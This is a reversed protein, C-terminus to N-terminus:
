RFYASGANREASSAPTSWCDKKDDCEESRPTPLLRLLALFSSTKYLIRGWATETHRADYTRTYSSYGTCDRVGSMQLGPVPIASIPKLGCRIQHVEVNQTRPQLLPFATIETSHQATIKPRYVDTAGAMFLSSKRLSSKSLLSHTKYKLMKEWYICYTITM